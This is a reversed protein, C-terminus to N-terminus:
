LRVGYGYSGAEFICDKITIYDGQAYVAPGEPFLFRGYTGAGGVIIHKNALTQNDTLVLPPDLCIHHYIKEM